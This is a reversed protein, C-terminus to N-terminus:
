KPQTKALVYKAWNEKHIRYKQPTQSTPLYQVMEPNVTQFTEVIKPQSVQNYSCWKQIPHDLYKM